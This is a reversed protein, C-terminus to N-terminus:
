LVESLGLYRIYVARQDYHHRVWEALLRVKGGDAISAISVVYLRSRDAYVRGAEAWLGVATRPLRTIGGIIEVAAAEFAAHHEGAFPRGQNDATPILIQIEIM